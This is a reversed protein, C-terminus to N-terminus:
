ESLLLGSCRLELGSNKDSKSFSSSESMNEFFEGFDFKMFIRGTSASVSPCVFTVISISTQLLKVFAELFPVNPLGEVSGTASGCRRDCVPLDCGCLV